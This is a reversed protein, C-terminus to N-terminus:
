QPVVEPIEKLRTEKPGVEIKRHIIDLEAASLEFFKSKQTM